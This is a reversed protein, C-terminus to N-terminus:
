TVWSSRYCLTTCNMHKFTHQPLTVDTVMLKKRFGCEYPSVWASTAQKPQDLQLM